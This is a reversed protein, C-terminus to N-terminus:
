YRLATSTKEDDLNMKGKWHVKSVVDFTSLCIPQDWLTLNYCMEGKIHADNVYPSILDPSWKYLKLVMFLLLQNFYM